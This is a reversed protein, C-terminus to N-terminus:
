TELKKKLSDTIGLKALEEDEDLIKIAMRLTSKAKDIKDGLLYNDERSREEVVGMNEIDFELADINRKLDLIKNDRNRIQIDTDAKLLELQNELEKERAQIKKFDIRVKQNLREFEKQYMKVKEEAMEKKNKSLELEYKISEVEDKYRKKLLSLEIRIEDKEIRLSALDRELSRKGEKLAANEAILEERDGRIHGISAQLKVLEDEHHQVYQKHDDIISKAAISASAGDSQVDFLEEIEEKNQEGSIVLTAGEDPYELDKESPVLVSSSISEYNGDATFDLAESETDIEEIDQKEQSSEVDIESRDVQEINEFDNDTSLEISDGLGFDLDLESPAEPLERPSVEDYIEELEEINESEFSIEDNGDDVAHSLELDHADEETPLEENDSLSSTVGFDLDIVPNSEEIENKLQDIDLVLTATDADEEDQDEDIIEDFEENEDSMRSESLPESSGFVQDFKAQIKDSVANEFRDKEDDQGAIKFDELLQDAKQDASHKKM